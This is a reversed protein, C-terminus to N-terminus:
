LSDLVRSPVMRHDIRCVDDGIRDGFRPNSQCRHLYGEGPDDQRLEVCVAHEATVRRARPRNGDGLLQRLDLVVREDRHVEPGILRAHLSIGFQLTFLPLRRQGLPQSRAVRGDLMDLAKQRDAQVLLDGVADELGPHPLCDQHRERLRLVEECETGVGLSLRLDTDRGLEHLFRHELRNRRHNLASAPVKREDAVRRRRLTEVRDLLPFRSLDLCSILEGPRLGVGLVGDLDAHTSTSPDAVQRVVALAVELLIDLEVLSQDARTVHGRRLM